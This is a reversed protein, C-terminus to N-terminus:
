DPVSKLLLFCRRGQLSTYAEDITWHRAGLNDNIDNNRVTANEVREVFLGGSEEIAGGWGDPGSSRFLFKTGGWSQGSDSETTM